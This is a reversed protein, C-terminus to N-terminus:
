VPKTLADSIPVAVHNGGDEDTVGEADVGDEIRQRVLSDSDPSPKPALRLRTIVQARTLSPTRGSELNCFRCNTDRFTTRVSRATATYGSAVANTCPAYGSATRMAIWGCIDRASRGPAILQPRNAGNTRVIM